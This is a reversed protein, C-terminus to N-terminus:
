PLLISRIGSNGGQIRLCLDAAKATTVVPLTPHWNLRSQRPSEQKLLSLGVDRSVGQDWVFRPHQDGQITPVGAPTLLHVQCLRLLNKSTIVILFSFTATAMTVTFPDTLLSALIHHHRQCRCHDSSCFFLQVSLELLFNNNCCCNTTTILFDNCCSKNPHLHLVLHPPSSGLVVNVFIVSVKGNKDRRLEETARGWCKPSPFMLPNKGSKM